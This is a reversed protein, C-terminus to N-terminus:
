NSICMWVIDHCLTMGHCGQCHWNHWKVNIIAMEAVPRHQHQSKSWHFGQAQEVVIDYYM